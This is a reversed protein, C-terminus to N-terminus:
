RDPVRGLYTYMIHNVHTKSETAREQNTFGVQVIIVNISPNNILQCLATSTTSHLIHGGDM